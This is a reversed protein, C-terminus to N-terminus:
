SQAGNRRRTLGAAGAAADIPQLQGRLAEVFDQVSEPLERGELDCRRATGPRGLNEMVMYVTQDYGGPVISPTCGAKRM